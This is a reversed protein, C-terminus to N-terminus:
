SLERTFNETSVYCKGPSPGFGKLLLFPGLVNHGCERQRRQGARYCRDRQQETPQRQDDRNRMPVLSKELETKNDVREQAEM